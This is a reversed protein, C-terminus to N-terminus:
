RHAERSLKARIEELEERLKRENKELTKLRLNLLEQKESLEKKVSSKTSKILVPGSMKFIETETTKELEGLANNIEALQLSINEKQILINQAQQQYAQAQALTNQAEQSTM